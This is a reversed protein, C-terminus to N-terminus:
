VKSAARAADKTDNANIRTQPKPSAAVLSLAPATPTGPEGSPPAGEGGGVPATQNGMLARALEEVALQTLQMHQKFAEQAASAM